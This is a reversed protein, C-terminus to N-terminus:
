NLIRGTNLCFFKVKGQLNGTPGMAIAEHTCPTMMNSPSPEDHVECYTRPLVRCHKSYDMRWRVLLEIPLFVSSIGNKVPFANLWLVMFYIFEIKMCCPLHQFPLTGLLGRTQEKVTHITREVKSVHEKAVTTNCEVRPILDRVKEFEGDMLITRVRFGAREYVQLVRTLHEGKSPNRIMAQARQAEKAQLVDRKTHGEYNGHVTQVHMVEVGTNAVHEQQM